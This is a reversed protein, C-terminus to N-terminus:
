VPMRNPNQTKKIDLDKIDGLLTPQNDKVTFLYHAKKEEVLYNAIDKQTHLADATVVAGEINIKKFLPRVRKIENTKEGVEEQAIVVGEKHIVASLLHIPKQSGNHSGRVTKGDIAIGRGKLADPSELLKQELLWEGIYNDFKDADIRQLVRRITPESPPRDRESGFRRLEEKSLSTSWDGIARYTRCGCIVACVSICLVTEFPHRKGLSSRPDPFERVKGLLSVIPFEIM